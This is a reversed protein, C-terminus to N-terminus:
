DFWNGICKSNLFSSIKAQRSSYFFSGSCFSFFFPPLFGKNRFPVYSFFTFLTSTLLFREGQQSVKEEGWGCLM